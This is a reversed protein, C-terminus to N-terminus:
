QPHEPYDSEDCIAGNLSMLFSNTSPKISLASIGARREVRWRVIPLGERKLEEIAYKCRRIQHDAVSESMTQLFDKCLPLNRLNKEVTTHHPLRNIYWARTRRTSVSDRSNALRRLKRCLARDRESWNIRESIIPHAVRHAKNMNLLWTHDHRYLWAYTAALGPLNSRIWKTGRRGFLDISRRWRSRHEELRNTDPAANARSMPTLQQPPLGSVRRIIESVSPNPTLAAWVTLHQIYSFSKRHKRFMGTLWSSPRGVINNTSDPWIRGFEAALDKHLVHAGNTCGLEAAVEHYFHSWQHYTPSPLPPMELLQLVLSSFARDIAPTRAKMDSESYAQCTSPTAAVFRHRELHRFSISSDLLPGHLRCAEIGAVQWSRQWFYEGCRRHQDELCTPCFRLHSPPSVTSASVGLQVHLAGGASSRMQSIASRRRKDPVFPAYLPLLTYRYVLDEPSIDWLHGANALFADLHSPLDVTAVVTRCGFLDDLCQKPSLIGMHVAYRAFVSYLLEDPRPTPLYHLM